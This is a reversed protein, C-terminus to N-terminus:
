DDGPDPFTFLWNVITALEADSLEAATWAPMYEEREGYRQRGHGERM